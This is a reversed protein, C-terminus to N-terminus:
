RNRVKDFYLKDLHGTDDTIYDRMYSNSESFVCIGAIREPSVRKGDLYLSTGTGEVNDLEGRLSLYSIYRRKDEETM